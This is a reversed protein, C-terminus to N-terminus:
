AVQFLLSTQTIVKLEIKEIICFFGSVLKPSVCQSVDLGLGLGPHTYRPAVIAKFEVVNLHFLDTQVM